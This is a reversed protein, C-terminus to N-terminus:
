GKRAFRKVVQFIITAAILFIGASAATVVSLYFESGPMSRKYIIGVFAWIIVISFFYDKRRLLLIIAVAAAVAIMLSAWFEDSLGFGNWNFKILLAAANAITAVTIWGLYVSFPLHVLYREGRSVIRHGVGLRLYVMLLSFFLILMLLMSLWMVQHHWAFIWSANALSSVFFWIDIRYLFRNHPIKSNSFLGKSQYFVFLILFLYILGWISFTIGAPTFLSPYLGSLEGTTKGAIPLANALYNVVLVLLLGFINLIQYTKLKM